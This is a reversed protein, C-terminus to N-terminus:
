LQWQEILVEVQEPSSARILPLAGLRDIVRHRTAISGLAIEGIVFPHSAVQETTLLSVLHKDSKRLHDIWISTDPLIM